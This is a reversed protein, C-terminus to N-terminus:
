RIMISPMVAAPGSPLGRFNGIDITNVISYGLQTQKITLLAQFRRSGPKSIKYPFPPLSTGIEM